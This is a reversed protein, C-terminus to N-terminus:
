RDVGLGPHPGLFEVREGEVRELEIGHVLHQDPHHAFVQDLVPPAHLLLGLLSNRRGVGRFAALHQDAM